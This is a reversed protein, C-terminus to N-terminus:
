GTRVSKSRQANLQRRGRESFGGWVGHEVGNVLAHELCEARVPCIACIRQAVEVGAGDHPFFVEPHIDRCRAQDMWPPAVPSPQVAM